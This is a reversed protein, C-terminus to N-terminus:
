TAWKVQGLFEDNNNNSTLTLILNFLSMIINLIRAPSSIIDFVSLIRFKLYSGLNNKYSKFIWTM